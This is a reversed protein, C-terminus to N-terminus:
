VGALMAGAIREVVAEVLERSANDTIYVNFKAYDPNATADDDSKWVRVSGLGPVNMRHLRTDAGIRRVHRRGITVRLSVSGPILRAPSPHGFVDVRNLGQEANQVIDYRDTFAMYSDLVFAPPQLRALFLDRVIEASLM